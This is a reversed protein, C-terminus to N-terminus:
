SGKKNIVERLLQNKKLGKFYKSKGTIKVGDIFGGLKRFNKISNIDYIRVGGVGSWSKKLRGKHGKIGYSNLIKMWDKCLKPHYCRLTLEFNGKKSLSISGDTSFAFRICLIKTNENCRNLFNLSPQTENLYSSILQNKSPLKKYSPSLKLLEQGLINDSVRIAFVDKKSKAKSPIFKSLRFLIYYMINRLTQDVTYYSIRYHDGTITLSGDTLICTALICKLDVNKKIISETFENKIIIKEKRKKADLLRKQRKKMRLFTTFEKIDAIKSVKIKGGKVQGWNKPLKKIIYKNFNKLQPTKQVIKKFARSPLTANENLWNYLTTKKINFIKCVEKVSLSNIKIFKLILEKQKGRKFKLRYVV